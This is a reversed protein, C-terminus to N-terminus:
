HCCHCLPLGTVSWHRHCFTAFRDGVLTLSLLSLTAFRDGVLTLSLTAFRDGVLTLSLTAFRDSVVSLSLTAFRDNVLTLSLTAGVLTQSLTAFGTVEKVKQIMHGSVLYIPRKRLICAKTIGILPLRVTKFRGASPNPGLINRNYTRCEEWQAVQGGTLNVSRLM